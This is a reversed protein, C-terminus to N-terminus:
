SFKLSYIGLMGGLRVRLRMVGCVKKLPVIYTGFGDKCPSPKIETSGILEDGAYIEVSKTQCPASAIIEVSTYNEFSADNFILNGGWDHSITYHDNKDFSFDLTVMDKGDYNKAKLFHIDRPPIVEGVVEIEATCRVDLSSAAATFTYTGSEVCLKERTVDYFELVNWPVDIEVKVAEGARIKVRKFGCLQRLPRKVRPNNHRFYIQVVEDGDVDSINKM